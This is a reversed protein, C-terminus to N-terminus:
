GFHEQQYKGPSAWTLCLPACLYDVILSPNVCVRRTLSDRSKFSRKLRTKLGLDLTDVDTGQWSVAAWPGVRGEVRRASAYRSSPVMATTRRRQGADGDGEM